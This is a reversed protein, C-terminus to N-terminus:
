HPQTYAQQLQNLQQLGQNQLRILENLLSSAGIRFWSKDIKKAMILEALKAYTYAQHPTKIGGSIKIGCDNSLSDRMACLLTFVAPLSAGQNIKGTSTKLFDCGLEILNKSLEYISELQNFAGTEIIIKTTLQHKKCLEIVAQCQNLTDQKKGNLYLQYPLVYDIETAGLLVAKEISELSCNLTDNGQPFNVVTALQPLEICNPPYTQQVQALHKIYICIAAVHNHCANLNLQLLSETLAHEDLLTLDISHILQQVEIASNSQYALIIELLKNLDFEDNM